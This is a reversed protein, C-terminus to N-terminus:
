LQFANLHDHVPLIIFMVYVSDSFGSGAVIRVVCLM